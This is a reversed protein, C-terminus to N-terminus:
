KTLGYIKTVLAATKEDPQKGTWADIQFQILAAKEDDTRTAFSPNLLSFEAALARVEENVIGRVLLPMLRNKEQDLERATRPVRSSLSGGNKRTAEVQARSTFAIM